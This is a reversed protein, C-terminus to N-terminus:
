KYKLSKYYIILLDYIIMEQQNPNAIFLRNLFMHIYNKVDFYLNNDQIEIILKKNQNTRNKFFILYNEKSENSKLAIEIKNQNNRYFLTTDKKIESRNSVTSLYFDRLEMLLALRNNSEISFDNFLYHVGIMAFLWMDNHMNHMKVWTVLQLVCLSDYYFIQESIIMGKAGGYRIIEREYTDIQIKDIAFSNIENQFITYLKDLINEFNINKKFFRLRFHYDPDYYRIFFFSDYENEDKLISILLTLKEIFLEDVNIAPNVYIKLFLCDKGPLMKINISDYKLRLETNIEIENTFNNESLRNKILLPIHIENTINGLENSCISTNNKLFLCEELIVSGNNLIENYLLTISHDNGIDLPLINDGGISMTVYQEVNNRKLYDILISKSAKKTTFIDKSTMIWKEKSLIYLKEFMVRPLHKRGSLIGWDWLNVFYDDSIAGLFKYISNTLLDTNQACGLRPKVQKNLKPSYLIIKEDQIYIYLDTLSISFTKDHNSIDYVSIYYYYVNPRSSVNGLRPQSLHFVESFIENSKLVKKEFTVIKECFNSISKNGYAFRGATFHAAGVKLANCFYIIGKEEHHIAQCSFLLSDNIEEIPQSIFDLDKSTLQIEKQNEKLYSEYKDLLLYDWRELEKKQNSKVQVKIKKLLSSEPSVSFKVPYGIGLDPDLVELLPVMKDGYRNIFAKKFQTLPANEKTLISNIKQFPRIVKEADYKIKKSLCFDTKGILDVQITTKNNSNYSALKSDIKQIINLAQDSVMSETKLKEILYIVKELCNIIPTLLECQIKLNIEKLKKSLEKEFETSFINYQLESIILQSDILDIVFDSIDQPDLDDEDKLMERVDEFRIGSKGKELIEQLFTSFNVKVLTFDFFDDKSIKEIYRLYDNSKYLTNNTYFTIEERVNKLKNIQNIINTLVGSDIKVSRKKYCIKSINENFTGISIGASIGFPTARYCMRLFYKILSNAVKKRKKIYNSDNNVSCKIAEKYLVTSYLYISERFVINQSFFSFIYEQSNNSDFFFKLCNLSFQPSRILFDNM